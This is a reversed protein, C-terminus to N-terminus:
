SERTLGLYFQQLHKATERIDFGSKVVFASTDVRELDRRTLADAAWQPSGDSINRQTILGCGIDAEPQINESVVCPLGAAQAEVLSIGLGEFVSPFLFLDMAQLYDYVRNTQGMFVVAEDLHMWVIQKRIEDELEGVGILWLVSNPEKQHLQQFVDLLFKHNKAFTFRGVHGVLLTDDAVGYQKRMKVRVAPNYTYREVQIGNNLVKFRSSEVVKKGFRDIGAQQSCAFFYDSIYRIPYSFLLFAYSRLNNEQSRTAHSHVVAIRRYKKASALYIAASSNIHGHVISYEPHQIFFSDWFKKYPFYNLVNFRETRFIKGGLTKIEDDYFSKDKTHVVFDFQIQTRDMMRYLSMLMAEAGGSGMSGIVHLIRLM